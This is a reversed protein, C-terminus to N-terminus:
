IPEIPDARKLFINTTYEADLKGHVSKIFIISVGSKSHFHLSLKSPWCIFWKLFLISEMSEIWHTIWSLSFFAFLSIKFTIIILGVRWVCISSLVNYLHRLECGWSPARKWFTHFVFIVWQQWENSCCSKQIALCLAINLRHRYSIINCEYYNM